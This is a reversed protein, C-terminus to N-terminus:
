PDVDVMHGGDPVRAPLAIRVRHAGGLHGQGGSGVADGGVQALVAALMESASMSASAAVQRL